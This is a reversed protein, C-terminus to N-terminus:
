AGGKKPVWYVEQRIFDKSFGRRELIGRSNEIMQPHGCLYTTTNQPDMDLSDLYKRLVDEVRGVEGQWSPDEWPRSVTPIYRLWAFEKQLANLEERYAFEWSRSAAQLLVIRYDTPHGRRAEYALTRVMSVYPAVGTVTCVLFHQQHGSKEDFTFLGKTQRRMLLTDGPRQDYLPPTLHGPPVLEFFFEVEEEAPSSCISYARELVRGDQEMGLTTYQGPTFKLREEPLVRITWLDASYDQRFTIRVKQYKEDPITM